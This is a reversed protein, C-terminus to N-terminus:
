KKDEAFIKNLEEIASITWLTLRGSVGGPALHVVSLESPDCVTIGPLNRASRFIPTGAKAVILFSTRQKYKRGRTKGRGARIKKSSKSRIINENLGMKMFVAQLDHTKEISEVDDVCIFPVMSKEPVIYGKAEVSEKNATAAIASRLALRREKKNIREIIIKESHPPHTRRGGVSFPIFAGKSASPSRSGKVRPVRSVGHGVGWSAATTKKGSLPDLGQPQYSHSTLALFARRIVDPRYPTEFVGPLSVKKVVKGELDLLDVKPM